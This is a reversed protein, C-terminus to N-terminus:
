RVEKRRKIIVFVEKEEGQERRKQDEISAIPLYYPKGDRTREPIEVECYMSCNEIIIKANNEGAAGRGVNLLFSSKREWFMPMFGLLISVEKKIHSPRYQRIKKWEPFGNPYRKRLEWWQSPTSDFTGDAMNVLLGGYEDRGIIKILLTEISYALPEVDTSYVIDIVPTNGSDLINRIIENKKYNLDDKCRLHEVYRRGSG